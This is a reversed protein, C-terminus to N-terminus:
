NHDTSRFFPPMVESQNTICSMIYNHVLNNKCDTQNVITLITTATTFTTAAATTAVVTATTTTTTTTAIYYM